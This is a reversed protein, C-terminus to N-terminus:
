SEKLISSKETQESMFHVNIKKEKYIRFYFVIPDVLSPFQPRAAYSSHARASEVHRGLIPCRQYRKHTLQSTMLTTTENARTYYRYMSAEKVSISTGQAKANIALGYDLRQHGEM